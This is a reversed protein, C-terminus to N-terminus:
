PLVELELGVRFYDGNLSVYDPAKKFRCNVTAETRPHQFDFALSGGALTSLYFGELVAVQARSLVYSVLM